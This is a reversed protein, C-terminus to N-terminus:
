HLYFSVNRIPILPSLLGCACGEKARRREDALGVHGDLVIFFNLFRIGDSTDDILEEQISTQEIHSM